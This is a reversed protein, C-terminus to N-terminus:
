KRHVHETYININCCTVTMLISQSIKHVLSNWLALHLLQRDRNGRALIGLDTGARYSRDRTRNWGIEDSTNKNQHTFLPKHQWRDVQDYSDLNGRTLARARARTHTHRSVHSSPFYFFSIEYARAKKLYLLFCCICISNCSNHKRSKNRHFWKTTSCTRSGYVPNNM